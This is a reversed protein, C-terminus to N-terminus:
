VDGVQHLYCFSDSDSQSFIRWHGPSPKVHVQPLEIKDLVHQALVVTQTFVGTLRPFPDLRHLVVGLKRVPTLFSLTGFLNPISDKKDQLNYKNVKM